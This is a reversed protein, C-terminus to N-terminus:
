IKQREEQRFDKELYKKSEMLESVAAIANDRMARILRDWNQQEHLTAIDELHKINVQKNLEFSSRFLVEFEERIPSILFKLDVPKYGGLLDTSESQQNMNIVTLKHGISDALYQVANTKGTGTEGVLL